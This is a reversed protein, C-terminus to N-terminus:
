CSCSPGVQPVKGECVRPPASQRQISSGLQHSHAPLLPVSSTQEEVSSLRATTRREGAVEAVTWLDDRSVAPNSWAELNRRWGRERRSRYLCVFRWELGERLRWGSFLIFYGTIRQQRRPFCVSRMIVELSASPAICRCNRPSSKGFVIVIVAAAVLSPFPAVPPFSFSNSIHFSIVAPPFFCFRAYPIYLWPQNFLFSLKFLGTNKKNATSALARCVIFYSRAEEEHENEGPANENVRFVTWISFSSYLTRDLPFAFPFVGIHRQTILYGRYRKVENHLLAATSRSHLIHYVSQQM